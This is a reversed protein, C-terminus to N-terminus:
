KESEHMPSPFPLGSWHEQRSFGLSPLAQHAATQPTACLRVRSFRSLLLLLASSFGEIRLVLSPPPSSFRDLLQQSLLATLCECYSLCTFKLLTIKKTTTSSLEPFNCAHYKTIHVNATGLHGTSESGHLLEAPLTTTDNQKLPSSIMTSIFCHESLPLSICSEM